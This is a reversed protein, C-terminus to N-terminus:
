RQRNRNKRPRSPPLYEDSSAHGTRDDEDEEAGEVYGVGMFVPAGGAGGHALFGRRKSRTGMGVLVGSELDEEIDDEQLFPVANRLEEDLTLRRNSQSASRHRSQSSRRSSPSPSRAPEPPQMSAHSEARTQRTTDHGLNSFQLVSEPSSFSLSLPDEEDSNEDDEHPQPPAPRSARGPPRPRRPSKDPFPSSPPRKDFINSRPQNGRIFTSAKERAPLARRSVDGMVVDLNKASADPDVPVGNGRFRYFARSPGVPPTSPPQDDPSTDEEREVENDSCLSPTPADTVSSSQWTRNPIALKTAPPYSRSLSPMSSETPLSYSTSSTSSSAISSNVSSIGSHRKLPGHIEEQNAAAARKRKEGTRADSETRLDSSSSFSDSASTNASQTQRLPLSRRSPLQAVRTPPAPAIFTANARSPQSRESTKRLRVTKMEILFAAMKDPALGVTAIGPRRTSVIPNEIPPPAQKLSARASAFLNPDSSTTPVTIINKLPPPPPPPPPPYPRNDGSTTPRRLLEEKLRAIEEELMRIRARDRERDREVQELRFEEGNDDDLSRRRRNLEERAAVLEKEKGQVRLFGSSDPDHASVLDVARGKGKNVSSIPPAHEPEARRSHVYQPSKKPSPLLISPDADEEGIHFKDVASKVSSALHSRRRPTGPSSPHRSSSPTSGSPHSPGPAPSLPIKSSFRVHQAHESALSKAEPEMSPSRPFLSGPMTM